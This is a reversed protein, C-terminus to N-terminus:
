LSGKSVSDTVGSQVQRWWEGLSGEEARRRFFDIEEGPTLDKIKEYIEAQVRRKYEICDFAKETTSLKTM